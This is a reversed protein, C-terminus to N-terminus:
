LEYNMKYLKQRNSKNKAARGGVPSFCCAAFMGVLDHGSEVCYLHLVSHSSFLSNFVAVYFGNIYDKEPFQAAETGIEM